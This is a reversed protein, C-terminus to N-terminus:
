PRAESRAPLGGAKPTTLRRPFLRHFATRPGDFVLRSLLEVVHNRPAPRGPRTRLVYWAQEVSPTGVALQELVTLRRGTSALYAAQLSTSRGVGAGCHVFVLGPSRDVLRVFRDVITADPAHGDRVPLAVYGIGLRELFSPDDKHPDGPDGTRLDVVTRVGMASLGRYDGASPQGGRDDVRRLSPVGPLEPDRVRTDHGLLRAVLVGLPIAANAAAAIAAYVALATRFRPTRM